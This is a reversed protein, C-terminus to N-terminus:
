AASGVGLSTPCLIQRSKRAFGPDQSVLIRSKEMPLMEGLAWFFRGVVEVGSSLVGWRGAARPPARPGQTSRSALAAGLLLGLVLLLCGAAVERLTEQSQFSRIYM